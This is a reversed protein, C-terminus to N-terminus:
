RKNKKRWDAWRAKAAESIRKRGAASMRRKATRAPTFTRDVKAKISEPATKTIGFDVALEPFADLARTIAQRAGERAWQRQEDNM